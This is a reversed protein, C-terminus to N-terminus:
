LSANVWDLLQCRLFENAELNLVTGLSCAPMLAPHGTTGCSGTGLHMWLALECLRVGFADLDNPNCM